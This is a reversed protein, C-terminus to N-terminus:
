SHEPIYKTDISSVITLMRQLEPPQSPRHSNRQESLVLLFKTKYNRHHPAKDQAYSQMQLRQKLPLPLHTKKIGEVGMCGLCTNDLESLLQLWPPICLAKREKTILVIQMLFINSSHHEQLFLGM